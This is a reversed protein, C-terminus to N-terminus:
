WWLHHPHHNGSRPCLRHQGLRRDGCQRPRQLDRPLPPHKRRSSRYRTASRFSGIDWFVAECPPPVTGNKCPARGSDVHGAFVSNGGQGPAGGKGPWASFNYYAVDDSGNPNPM